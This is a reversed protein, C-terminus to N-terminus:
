YWYLSAYKRGTNRCERRKRAVSPGRFPEGGHRRALGGFAKGLLDPLDIEELFQAGVPQNQRIERQNTQFM